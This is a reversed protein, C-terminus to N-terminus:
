AGVFALHLEHFPDLEIRNKELFVPYASIKVGERYCERLLRGYEPDIDDASDMKTCDTRQVVFFLEATAGQKQLKLLEILHKQGRTTVADPFLATKKNSDSRALTVSKVEVFHERAAGVLKLDLRTEPSIKVERAGDGFSRWHPIKKNLFAEWALENARHTNVGVWSTETQVQELTYKLKREPNDNPQVRCNHHQDCVGKLSGTNPVHAVVKKDGILVDAFFRKYRKLFRGDILPTNYDM